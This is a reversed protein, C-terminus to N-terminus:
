TNPLQNKNQLIRHQTNPLKCNKNQLKRKTEM